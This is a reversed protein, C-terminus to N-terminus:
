MIRGWALVRIIYVLFIMCFALMKATIVVSLEIGAALHLLHHLKVRVTQKYLVVVVLSAVCPEDM